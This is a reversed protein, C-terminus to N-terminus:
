QWQITVSSPQGPVVITQALVPPTFQIHNSDASEGVAAAYATVWCEYQVGATVSGDLDYTTNNGADIATPQTSIPTPGCYVNYGEAGASAGWELTPAAQVASVFLIAAFSLLMKVIQNRM